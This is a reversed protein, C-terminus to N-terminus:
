GRKLILNSLIDVFKDDVTTSPFLLEDSNKGIGAIKQLPASKLMSDIRLDVRGDSPDSVVYILLKGLTFVSSQCNAKPPGFVRESEAVEEYKDKPIALVGQHYYRRNWRVGDYSGIWIHWKPPCKKFNYLFQRDESSIGASKIDTYEAMIALLTVWAAFDSQEKETIVSIRGAILNTLLPKVGNEIVSMWGNNCTACVNRIKRSWLDGQKQRSGPTAYVGSKRYKYSVTQQTHSKSDRNIINRFWNPWIHQKSLGSGGCFICKGQAKVKERM